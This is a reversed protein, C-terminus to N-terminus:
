LFELGYATGMTNLIDREIHQNLVLLAGNKYDLFNKMEKYYGELSVEFSKYNQYLGLAVQDGVEPLINPDSLKWIDTPSLASTNTIMHVYQRIKQYSLKVSTNPAILYRASVRYEPGYYGKMLKGNGVFVSDSVSSSDRAVGSEYLYYASPGVPNFFSYRLGLNVSLKPSFTIQDELYVANELGQERPIEIRDFYQNM